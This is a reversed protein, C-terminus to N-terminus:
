TYDVKAYPIVLLKENGFIDLWLRKLPETSNDDLLLDLNYDRDIVSVVQALCPILVTQVRKWLTHRCFDVCFMASFIYMGRCIGNNSLYMKKFFNSKCM